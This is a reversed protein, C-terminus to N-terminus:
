HIHEFRNPEQIQLVHTTKNVYFYIYGESKWLVNTVSARKDNLSDWHSVQDVNTYHKSHPKRLREDKTHLKM